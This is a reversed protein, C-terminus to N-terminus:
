NEKLVWFAWNNSRVGAQFIRYDVGAIRFDDETVIGGDNHVWWINRLEGIVQFAVYDTLTLPFLASIDGGSDPTQALTFSATGPDANTPIIDEFRFNDEFVLDQEPIPAGATTTAPTGTPFVIRTTSQTRGSGPVFGNQYTQWVGAADRYLMPGTCGTDHGIPDSIGSNEIDTSNFAQAPNSCNGAICLPYTFESATGFPNLWGLYFSQYSTGNRALGVIAYSDVHVWYTLSQGATTALAVFAGGTVDGQDSRGPSIGPQDEWNDGASYGTFGALEWNFVSTDNFTRIGVFIEDAGAGEGNLIIERDSGSYATNREETWGNDAFTLNFTAGAGGGGTVAVPDAPPSSYAGASKVKAATIAGTGSVATVELTTAASAVSTGGSVTLIDGVVYTETTGDNVVADVSVCSQNTAILALKQALDIYSTATGTIMPM